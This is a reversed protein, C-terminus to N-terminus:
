GLTAYDTLRVGHGVQEFLGDGAVVAVAGGLDDLVREADLAVFTALPSFIPSTYPLLAVPKSRFELRSKDASTRSRPRTPRQM